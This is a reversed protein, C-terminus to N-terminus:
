QRLAHELCKELYETLSDEKSYPLIRLIDLVILRNITSINSRYLSTNKITTDLHINKVIAKRKVQRRSWFYRLDFLLKSIDLLRTEAFTDLFDIFYVNGNSVILNELTFDGHCPNIPINDWDNDLISDFYESYEPSHKRINEVKEKVEWSINKRDIVVSESLYSMIVSLCPKISSIDSSSLFDSMSIGNIYEMDFYFLNELYGKRFIKPTKIQYKGSDFIEQKQSQSALRNNYDPSPSIKRVYKSKKDQCLLVKCGSYGNLRKIVM